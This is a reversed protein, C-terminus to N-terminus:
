NLSISSGYTEVTPLLPCNEQCLTLCELNHTIFLWSTWVPGKAAIFFSEVVSSGLCSLVTTKQKMRWDPYYIFLHVSCFHAKTSMSSSKGGCLLRFLDWPKWFQQVKWSKPSEASDKKNCKFAKRRLSAHIHRSTIAQTHVQIIIPHQDECNSQYSTVWPIM